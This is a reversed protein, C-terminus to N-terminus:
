LEVLVVSLQFSKVSLTSLFFVRCSLGFINLDNKSGRGVAKVQTLAAGCM